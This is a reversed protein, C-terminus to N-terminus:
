RWQRSMSAVPSRSANPVVVPERQTVSSWPSEQCATDSCKGGTYQTRNTASVPAQLAWEGDEHGAQHQRSPRSGRLIGLTRPGDLTCELLHGTSLHEPRSEVREGDRKRHVVPLLGPEKTM